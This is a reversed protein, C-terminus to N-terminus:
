VAKVNKIIINVLTLRSKINQIIENTQHDKYQYKNYTALLSELVYQENRYKNILQQKAKEYNM